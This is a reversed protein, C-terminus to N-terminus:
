GHGEMAGAVGNRAGSGIASAIARSALGAKPALFRAATIGANGLLADGTVIASSKDDRYKVQAAMAGRVGDNV